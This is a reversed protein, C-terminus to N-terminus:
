PSMLMSVRGTAASCTNRAELVVIDHVGSAVLQRVAFAGSIGTGIVVVNAEKPLEKTTRHQAIKSSFSEQWFSKTPNPSPLLSPHEELPM